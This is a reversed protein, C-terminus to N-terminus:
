FDNKEKDSVEDRLHRGIMELEHVDICNPIQDKKVMELCKDFDLWLVGDVEEEQVVFESEEVDRWLLYVKSVESNKFPKGHFNEETHSRHFGCDILEGPDVYLGLEEGLERIASEVYDDGAPIHGASSIDYCGPYSDKNESRRQLLIQVVGQHYRVVWVHSTHHLTGEQHAKTREVIEGTPIGNEDVVDLYEM